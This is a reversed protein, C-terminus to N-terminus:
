LTSDTIVTIQKECVEKPLQKERLVLQFRLM